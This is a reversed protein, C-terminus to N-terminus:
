RYTALFRELVQRKLSIESEDEGTIIPKLDLTIFESKHIIEVLYRLGDIEDAHFYWHTAAGDDIIALFANNREFRYTTENAIMIYSTTIERLHRRLEYLTDKAITKEIATLYFGDFRPRIVYNDWVNLYLQKSFKHPHSILMDPFITSHLVVKPDDLEAKLNLFWTWEHNREAFLPIIKRQKLLDLDENLLGEFSESTAFKEFEIIDDFVKYDRLVPILNQILFYEKISEPLIIDYKSELHNLQTLRESDIIAEINLLDFIEHHYKLTIIM